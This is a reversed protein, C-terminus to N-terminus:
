EEQPLSAQKEKLWGWRSQLGDTHEFLDKQLRKGMPDIVVDIGERRALKAAPVFDSDGIILVIQSVLKKYALGAIDLGLRMDVGKQKTDLYLDEDKLPYTFKGAIIDTQKEPNIRWPASDKHSLLHGLRLAIKRKGKLAEHLKARFLAKPCLAFNIPTKGIPFTSRKELPVCDYFFIRYLDVIESVPEDNKWRGMKQHCHKLAYNHLLDAVKEAQQEAQQKANEKHATRQGKDPIAALALAFHYDEDPKLDPRLSFLSHLFYEGDILIALRHSHM